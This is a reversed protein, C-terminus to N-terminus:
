DLWSLDDEEDADETESIVGKRRSEMAKTLASTLADGPVYKRVAQREPEQEVRRLTTGTRIRAM